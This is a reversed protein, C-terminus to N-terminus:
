RSAPIRASPHANLFEDLVLTAAGHAVADPGLRGLVISTAAYPQSLSNEASAARIDDLLHRGLLLGLWGGIVIREPNILNILNSLGVGLYTVTQTIVPSRSEVLAALEAQWDTTRTPVGARDLIGEAGIYAELCGRGGCRCIRGNVVIKTHGWEGASSSVGRFTVSDSVIAAGVGSGILVIVADGSGRGADAVDAGPGGSGGSGPAAGALGRGAGGSGYGPGIGRAAGDRGPDGGRRPASWLEARGLAKAGNEVFLPLTTGARLLAGLPVGDWGFTRTHILADPGGEVIGPVGVGVGLAQGAPVGADDLVVEVGALIHRVVLEIQHGAPRLAYEVRARENMELDFLEVRVHTEAVDVGIVYGYVPNVRLIARPRGGDSEAQGAEVVINEALLDGTMSSVTAASLGTLRTLENRTVPGSFYLTRLLMARNGKRVDRVTRREPRM